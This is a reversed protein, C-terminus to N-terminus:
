GFATMRNGPDLATAMKDFNAKWWEKQITACIPLLRWEGSRLDARPALGELVVYLGLNVKSTITVGVSPPVTQSSVSRSPREIPRM